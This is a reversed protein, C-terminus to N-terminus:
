IVFTIFDNEFTISFHIFGLTSYNEGNVLRVGWPYVIHASHSTPLLQIGSQQLSQSKLLSKVDRPKQRKMQLIPVIFGVPNNHPKVSTVYLSALLPM